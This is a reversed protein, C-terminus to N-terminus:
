LKVTARELASKAIKKHKFFAGKAIQELAPYMIDLAHRQMKIIMLHEKKATDLLSKELKLDSIETTNDSITQRLKEVERKANQQSQGAAIIQQELDKVLNANREIIGYAAELKCAICKGCQIDYTSKTKQYPCSKANLESMATNLQNTKEVLKKALHEANVKDELLTKIEARLAETIRKADQILRELDSNHQRSYAYNSSLNSIEQHLKSIRTELDAKERTHQLQLGNREASLIVWEQTKRQLSEETDALKLDATELQEQLHEVEAEANCCAKLVSNWKERYENNENRLQIIVSEMEKLENFQYHTM